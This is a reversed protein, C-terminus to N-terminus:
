LSPFSDLLEVQGPAPARLLRELMQCAVVEPRLAGHRGLPTNRLDTLLRPPRLVLFSVQKYELAAVRSLGEIACKAAIYHPWDAVPECVAISSAIVAWSGYQKMAPLFVAMPVAVLAIGQAIYQQIRDSSQAELRLPLLAPSANCILYDLGGHEGILRRHFDECWKREAGDGEVLEIRGASTGARSQVARAQAASRLYNVYVTCGQAALGLAMAAGLGRSGGIVVATKGLMQASAVRQQELEPAARLDQHVFSQVSVEAFPTDALKLSARSHLVYYRRDFSQVKCEYDVAMLQKPCFGAFTFSLRSLLARRGPMEMGVLYSSWALAMLQALPVGKSDLNFQESLRALPGESSLYSGTVQAGATMEEDSREAAERRHSLARAPEADVDGLVRPQFEARLSCVIRGADYLRAGAKDPEGERTEARYSIGPFMPNPFDLVIKKLTKQPRDELQGLAALAGLIGFAVNQGYATQRSYAASLHLPNRDHSAESFLLLDDPALTVFRTSSSGM